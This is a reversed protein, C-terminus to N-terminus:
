LKIDKIYTSIVTGISGHDEYEKRSMSKEMGMFRVVVMEISISLKTLTTKKVTKADTIAYGQHKLECLRRLESSGSELKGAEFEKQLFNAEAARNKYSCASASVCPEQRKIITRKRM